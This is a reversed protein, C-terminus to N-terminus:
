EIGGFISELKNIDNEENEKDTEVIQGKFWEIFKNENFQELNTQKDNEMCFDYLGNKIVEDKVKNLDDEELYLVDDLYPSFGVLTENMDDYIPVSLYNKPFEINDQFKKFLYYFYAPKHVEKIRVKMKMEKEV